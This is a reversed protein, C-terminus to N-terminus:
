RARALRRDNRIRAVPQPAHRTESPMDGLIARHEVLCAEGAKCTARLTQNKRPAKVQHSARRGRRANRYRFGTAVRASNTNRRMLWPSARRRSANAGRRFPWETRRGFEATAGAPQKWASCVDRIGANGRRALPRCPSCRHADLRRRAPGHEHSGHERSRAQDRRARAGEGRRQIRGGCTRIRQLDFRAHLAGGARRADHRQEVICRNRCGGDEPRVEGVRGGRSARSRPRLDLEDDFQPPRALVAIRDARQRQVEVFARIRGRSPGATGQPGARRLRGAVDRHPAHFAVDRLVGRQQASRVGPQQGAAVVVVVEVEVFGQLCRRRAREEDEIRRRRLRGRLADRVDDHGDRGVVRVIVQRDGREGARERAVDFPGVQIDNRMDGAGSAGPRRAVPEGARRIGHGGLEGVQAVREGDAVQAVVEHAVHLAAPAPVVAFDFHADVAPERAQGRDERPQAAAEAVAEAIRDVGRRRGRLRQVPHREAHIERWEGTQEVVTRLVRHFRAQGADLVAKHRSVQHEVDVPIARDDGTRHRAVRQGFRRRRHRVREDLGSRRVFPGHGAM